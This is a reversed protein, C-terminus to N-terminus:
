DSDSRQHHQQAGGPGGQGVADDDRFRRQGVRHREVLGPKCDAVVPDVDGDLILYGDRANLLLEDVLM